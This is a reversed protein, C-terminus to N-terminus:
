SLFSLRLWWDNSRVEQFNIEKFVYIRYLNKTSFFNTISGIVLNSWIAHIAIIVRLVFYKLRWSSIVNNKYKRFRSISVSLSIYTININIMLEYTWTAEKPHQLIKKKKPETKFIPIYVSLMLKKFMKISDCKNNDNIYVITLNKCIKVEM